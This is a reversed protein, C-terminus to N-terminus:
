AHAALDALQALGREFDAGIVKDMSFLKSFLARLGSNEGTMTWTVRTGSEVPEIEFLAVNSAAWPATFELAIRIQEPSSSLITMSGSGAKRNGEWSYVAGVGSLAGSYVRRLESDLGEWPSWAPWEHFDDILARVADPTANIVSSRSIRFEAMSCVKPSLARSPSLMSAEERIRRDDREGPPAAAAGDRGGRPPRSGVLVGAVVIVGGIAELATIREGLVVFAASIGFVPVLMSFPSVVGAPYRAMLWNWAGSGAVTAIVVTYGLGIWAPVAAPSVAGALSSAIRDPGEVILSLALMPVPPVVSMWLALRLPNSPRALRSSLNGIAWGLGGALTLLFPLLTAGTGSQGAGVIGLGILASGIGAIARRGIRERLFVAGLLVTFPASSQLVLSALGTPMGTAMALYLFLFQLVGFGIGYGLFWRLPVEPRPVFLVTPIALLTFRLAVLLFPPFQALSAHIAVFNIGWMLAVAVALLRHRPLM